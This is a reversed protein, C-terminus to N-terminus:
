EDGFYARRVVQDELVDSPKGVAIVQGYNLVVMRDCMDRLVDVNHDVIVAALGQLTFRRVTHGIADIAPTDLGAFPEDMILLPPSSILARVSEALKETGHSVDTVLTHLFKALLTFDAEIRTGERTVERSEGRLGVAMNRLFWIFLGVWSRPAKERLYGLRVNDLVTLNQALLPHQFTRSMGRHARAAPGEEIENGDLVVRGSDPGQVGTVIDILTSKGAGNPGVIGLVEGQKVEFSVDSLAHLGGYSKSVNAVTLLTKGLAPQEDTVVQRGSHIPMADSSPAQRELDRAIRAERRSSVLRAM